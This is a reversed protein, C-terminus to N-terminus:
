EREEPQFRAIRAWQEAEEDAAQALARHHSLSDLLEAEKRDFWAAVRAKLWRHYLVETWVEIAVQRREAAYKEWNARDMFAHRALDRANEIHHETPEPMTADATHALVEQYYQLPSADVIMKNIFARVIKDSTTDTSPDTPQPM